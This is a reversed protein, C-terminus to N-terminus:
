LEDGSGGSGGVSQQRLMAEILVKIEGIEATLDDVKRNLEDMQHASPDSHGLLLVRSVLYLLVVALLAQHRQPMSLVTAIAQSVLAQAQPIPSHTAIDDVAGSTPQKAEDGGDKEVENEEGREPGVEVMEGGEGDEAIATKIVEFLDM